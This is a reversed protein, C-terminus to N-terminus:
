LEFLLTARLEFEESRGGFGFSPGLRYDFGSTIVGYLGPTLSFGNGKHLGGDLELGFGFASSLNKKVGITYRYHVKEGEELNREGIVNAVLSISRFQRGVIVRGELADLEEGFGKEYELLVAVSFPDRGRHSDEFEEGHSDDPGFLRVRTELAISEMEFDLTSLAHHTHVELSWRNTLGYLLGPEFEFEREYNRSSTYQSSWLFFFSGREPTKYTSTILYEKGHHALAHVPLLAFVVVSVLVTASHM